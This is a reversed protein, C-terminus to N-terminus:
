HNIVVTVFFLHAPDIPVTLTSKWVLLLFTLGTPKIIQDKEQYFMWNLSGLPMLKMTFGGDINLYLAKKREKKKM